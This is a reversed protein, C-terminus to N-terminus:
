LNLTALYIVPRLWFVYLQVIHKKTAIAGKHLSPKQQEEYVMITDEIHIQNDVFTPIPGDFSSDSAPSVGTSSSSTFFTGRNM